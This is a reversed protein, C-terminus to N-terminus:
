TAEEKLRHVLIICMVFGQMKEEVQMIKCM